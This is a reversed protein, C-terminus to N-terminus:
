SRFTEKIKTGVGYNISECEIMHENAISACENIILEAFKEADLEYGMFDPSGNYPDNGWVGKQAQEALLKIRQNM